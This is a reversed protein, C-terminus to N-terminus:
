ISTTCTSQLRDQIAVLTLLELDFLQSSAKELKGLFHRFRARDHLAYKLSQVTGNLNGDRMGDRECDRRRSPHASVNGRHGECVGKQYTMSTLNFFLYFDIEVLDGCSRGSDSWGFSVTDLVLNRTSSVKVASSHHLFRLKPSLTFSVTSLILPTSSDFIQLSKDDLRLFQWGDSLIGDERYSGLV